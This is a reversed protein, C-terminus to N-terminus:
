SVLCALFELYIHNLQHECNSNDPTTTAGSGKHKQVTKITIIRIRVIKTLLLIQLHLFTIRAKLGYINKEVRAQHVMKIREVVKLLSKSSDRLGQKTTLAEM